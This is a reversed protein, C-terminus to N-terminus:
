TDPDVWANIPIKSSNYQETDADNSATTRRQLPANKNPEM